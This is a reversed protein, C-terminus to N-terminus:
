SIFRAYLNFDDFLRNRAYKWTISRNLRVGAQVNGPRNDGSSLVAEAFRPICNRLKPNASSKVLLQDLTNEFAAADTRGARYFRLQVRPM